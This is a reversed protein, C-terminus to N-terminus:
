RTAITIRHCRELTEDPAYAAVLDACQGGLDRRHTVHHEVDVVDDRLQLLRHHLEVV